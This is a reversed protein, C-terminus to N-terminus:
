TFVIEGITGNYRGNFLLSNVKDLTLLAAVTDAGVFGGVQPLLMVEADCNALLGIDKAKLVPEDVAGM